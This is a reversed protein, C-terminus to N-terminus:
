NADAFCLSMSLLPLTSFRLCSRFLFIKTVDSLLLAPHGLFDDQVLIVKAPNLRPSVQISADEVLEEVLEEVVEQGGRASPGSGGGAMGEEEGDEKGVEKQKRNQRCGIEANVKGKPEITKKQVEEPEMNEKVGQRCWDEKERRGMLAWRRRLEGVVDELGMGSRIGTMEKSLTNVYLTFAALEEEQTWTLKARVRTNGELERKVLDREVKVVDKSKKPGGSARGGGQREQGDCLQNKYAQCIPTLLGKTKQVSSGM